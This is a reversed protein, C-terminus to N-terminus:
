PVTFRVVPTIPEFGVTTTSGDTVRVVTDNGASWFVLTTPIGSPDVWVPVYTAFPMRAPGLTVRFVQDAYLPAWATSLPVPPQIVLATCSQLAAPLARPGRARDPYLPLWQVFLAPREKPDFAVAPHYQVRLGGPRPVLAPYVGQWALLPAEPAVIPLGAFFFAPVAATRLGAAWLKDPYVPTWQAPVVVPAPVTLPEFLQQYQFRPQM